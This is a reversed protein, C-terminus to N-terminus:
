FGYWPKAFAKQKLQIHLNVKRLTEEIDDTPEGDVEWHELFRRIIVGFIQFAEDPNMDEILQEQLETM